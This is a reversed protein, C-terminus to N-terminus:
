VYSQTHQRRSRNYQANESIADFICCAPSPYVKMYVCKRITIPLVDLVTHLVCMFRYRYQLAVTHPQCLVLLNATNLYYSNCLPANILLIVAM